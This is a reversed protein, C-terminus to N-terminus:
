RWASDPRRWRWYSADCCRMFESSCDNWNAFARGREFFNLTCAAVAVASASPTAWTWDIGRHNTRGDRCSAPDCLRFTFDDGSLEGARRLRDARDYHREGVQFFEPRVRYRASSKALSDGLCSAGNSEIRELIAGVFALDSFHRWFAFRCFRVTWTL